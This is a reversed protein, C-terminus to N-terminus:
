PWADSDQSDIRAQRFFQTDSVVDEDVGAEGDLFQIFLGSLFSGLQETLHGLPQLLFM